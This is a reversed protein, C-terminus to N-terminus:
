GNYNSFYYSLALWFTHNRGGEELDKLNYYEAQLLWDPKVTYHIGAGIGEFGDMYDALGNMTHSVYTTYPQHYYKLFYYANGRQWTNEKGRTLSVVYGKESRSEDEGLLGMLGLDFLGGLPRHVNLMYINREGRDKLDFRYLGAGLTYIDHTTSAEAAAAFGAQKITGAEAMYSFPEKGSVRVGTFRSDYINGEALFSGFAGADVQTSGVKGTLYWRDIDMWNDEGKGSLIKENELMSIFHWNDDINYNGYIRVRARSRDSSSKYGSHAGYDVRAEGDIKFRKEPPKPSKVETSAQMYSSERDFYGIASLEDAYEVRRRALREWDDSTIQDMEHMLKRRLAEREESSWPVLFPTSPVVTGDASMGNGAAKASSSSGSAASPVAGRSGTDGAKQNTLLFGNGSNMCRSIEKAYLKEYNKTAAEYSKRANEFRDGLIGVQLEDDLAMLVTKTYQVALAEAEPTPHSPDSSSALSLAYAKVEAALRGLWRDSEERYPALRNPDHKGQYYLLVNRRAMSAKEYTKAFAAEPDRPVPMGGLQSLSIILRNKEEDWAPLMRQRILYHAKMAEYDGASTSLATRAQNIPINAIVRAQADEVALEGIERKVTEGLGEGALLLERGLARANERRHAKEEATYRDMTERVQAREKEQHQAIPDIDAAQMVGCPLFAALSLCLTMGMKNM